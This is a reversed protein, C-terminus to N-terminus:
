NPKLTLPKPYPTRSLLIVAYLSNVWIEGTNANPQKGESNRSSASMEMLGSGLVSIARCVGGLHCILPPAILRALLFLGGCAGFFNSIEQTPLQHSLCGAAPASIKPAKPRQRMKLKLSEHPPPPPPPPTSPSGLFHTTRSM